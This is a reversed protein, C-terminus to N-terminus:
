LPSPDYQKGALSQIVPCYGGSMEGCQEIMSTLAKEMEGLDAIKIQVSALQRKAIQQVEDCHINQRPALSLLTRIEDLSFGLERGRRIFRLTDVDAPSYDRYTGKRPPAAILGVREYYRITEIKCGTQASLKGIKM